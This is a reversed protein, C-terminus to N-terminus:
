AKGILAKNIKDVAYLDRHNGAIADIAAKRCIEDFVSEYHIRNFILSKVVLLGGDVRAKKHGFGLCQLALTPKGVSARDRNPSAGFGSTGPETGLTQLCIQAWHRSNVGARRAWAGQVGHSSSVSAVHRQRRRPGLRHHCPRSVCRHIPGVSNRDVPLEIEPFARYRGYSTDGLLDPCVPALRAPRRFRNDRCCDCLRWNVM